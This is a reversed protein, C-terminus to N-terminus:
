ILAVEALSIEADPLPGLRILQARLDSRPTM